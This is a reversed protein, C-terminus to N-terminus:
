GIYNYFKKKHYKNKKLSISIRIFKESKIKISSIEKDKLSKQLNENFISAIHGDEGITLISFSLKKKALFKKSYDIKKQVSNM